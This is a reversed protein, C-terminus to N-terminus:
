PPTERRWRRGCPRPASRFTVCARAPPPSSRMASRPRSWPPRRSASAVPAEISALLEVEVEPVDGMRLPTYTDPNTDKPQGNVFESGEHQAMSLGWLAAGEVQAQASDLHIITGADSGPTACWTIDREPTGQHVRTRACIRTPQPAGGHSSAGSDLSARQRQTSSPRCLSATQEGCSPHRDRTMGAVASRRGRGQRGDFKRCHRAPDGAAKVAMMAPGPTEHTQIFM